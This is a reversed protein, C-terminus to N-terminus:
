FSSAGKIIDFYECGKKNGLECSKKFYFYTKDFNDKKTYLLGLKGCADSFGLNCAKDYMQIYTKMDGKELAIDGLFACGLMGGLECSKEFYLIAEKPNKRKEYIYKGIATCGIPLGAECSKKYYKVALENDGNKSANIGKRFLAQSLILMSNDLLFKKHEDSEKLMDVIECSTSHKLKCAKEFYIKAKKEDEIKHFFVGLEYCKTGYTCSEYEEKLYVCSDKKGEKCEKLLYFYAKKRYLHIETTMKNKEVETLKDKYIKDDLTESMDFAIDWCALGDKCNIEDAYLGSGFLLCAGAIMQLITKKM